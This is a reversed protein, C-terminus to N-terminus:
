EYKWIFGGGSKQNGNATDRISNIKVGTLKAAEESSDYSEIFNLSTDYQSVKKLKRCLRAKKLNDLQNGFIKGKLKESIKTRTEISLPRGKRAQSMKLRTENTRKLGTIKLIHAASKPKGKHILSLKAKTAESCKKGLNINRLKDKASQPLPGKRGDGGDTGNTLKEGLNRMKAIWFIERSYDDTLEILHIEPKLELSLLHRIWNIKHTNNSKLNASEKIHYALRENLTKETYGIYRIKKTIPDNLSYIRYQM